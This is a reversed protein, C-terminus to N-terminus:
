RPARERASPKVTAATMLVSPDTVSIATPESGFSIAL